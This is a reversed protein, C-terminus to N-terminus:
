PIWIGKLCAAKALAATETIITAPAAWAWAWYAKSRGAWDRSRESVATLGLDIDDEAGLLDAAFGGLGELTAEGGIGCQATQQGPRPQVDSRRRAARVQEDLSGGM